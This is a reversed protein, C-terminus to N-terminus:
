SVRQGTRKAYLLRKFGFHKKRNDVSFARRKSSSSSTYMFFFTFGDISQRRDWGNRVLWDLVVVGYRVSRHSPVTERYLPWM